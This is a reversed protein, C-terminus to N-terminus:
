LANDTETEDYIVDSLYVLDFASNYDCELECVVQEVTNLKNM